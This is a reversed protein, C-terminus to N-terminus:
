GAAVDLRALRGSGRRRALHQLLRPDPGVDLTEDVDVVHDQVPLVPRQQGVVEYGHEVAMPVGALGRGATIGASCAKHRDAVDITIRQIRRM